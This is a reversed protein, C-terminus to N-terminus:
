RKSFSCFFEEIISGLQGDQADLSTLLSNDVKEDDPGTDDDAPQKLPPPQLGRYRWTPTAM